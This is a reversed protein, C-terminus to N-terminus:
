SPWDRLAIMNYARFLFPYSDAVGKSWKAITLCPTKYQNDWHNVVAMCVGNPEEVDVLTIWHLNHSGPDRILLALPTRKVKNRYDTREM